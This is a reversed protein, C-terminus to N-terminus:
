KVYKKVLTDLEAEGGEPAAEKYLSWTECHVASEGPKISQLEGLTEMELFIGNTFTEFSMGGDPYTGGEVPRFQKLFLDGHLFYMAYGHESNIGFKFKNLNSGKEGCLTIYKDGWNVRPDGLKTYPWLALLRNGLLGIDKTPQPVIELGGPALVTLAWPALEVNWSATNKIHHTLSVDSSDPDLEVEIEYAVQNWKQPAPRFIAGQETLTYPVPDNDPYYSRPMAEPSTWLRHGGYIYWTGGGFVDFAPGSNSFTRELDDFMINEGDCFSYNIIRPGVDVTVILKVIGNSLELCRGFSKYEIERATIQAM